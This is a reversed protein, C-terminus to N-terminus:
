VKRMTEVKGCYPCSYIHMKKYLDTGEAWITLKENCEECKFNAKISKKEPIFDEIVNPKPTIVGVTGCDPCTMKVHKKNDGRSKKVAFFGACTPCKFHYLGGELTKEFEEVVDMEVPVIKTKFRKYILIILILILVVFAPISVVILGLNYVIDFFSFILLCFGLIIFLILFWLNKLWNFFKM